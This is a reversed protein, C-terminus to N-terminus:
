REGSRRAVIWGVRRAETPSLAGSALSGLVVASERLVVPRAEDAPGDSMVM